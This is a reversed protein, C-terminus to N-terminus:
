NRIANAGCVNTFANKRFTGPVTKTAPHQDQMRRRVHLGFIAVSIPVIVTTELAAIVQPSAPMSASKAAAGDDAWIM